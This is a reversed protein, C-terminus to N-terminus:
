GLTNLSLGVDVWVEMEKKISGPYYKSSSHSLRTLSSDSVEQILYALSAFCNHGQDMCRRPGSGGGAVGWSLVVDVCEASVELNVQTKQLGKLM